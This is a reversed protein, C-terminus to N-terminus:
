FSFPDWPLGQSGPHPSPLLDGCPVPLLKPLFHLKRLNSWITLWTSTTVTTKSISNGLRPQRSRPHDQPVFTPSSVPQWSWMWLTLFVLNKRLLLLPCTPSTELKVKSDRRSSLCHLLAEYQHNKLIKGAMQFQVTHNKEFSALYLLGQPMYCQFELSKVPCCIQETSLDKIDPKVKAKPDSCWRWFAGKWRAKALRSCSPDESHHKPCPALRAWLVVPAGLPSQPHQNPCRPM